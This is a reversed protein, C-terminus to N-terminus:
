QNITALWVIAATWCSMLSVVLTVFKVHELVTTKTKM